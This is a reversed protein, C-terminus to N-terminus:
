ESVWVLRTEPNSVPELQWSIQPGVAQAGAESQSHQCSSPYARSCHHAIALMRCMTGTYRQEERHKPLTDDTCSRTSQMNCNHRFEMKYLVGGGGLMYIVQNDVAM